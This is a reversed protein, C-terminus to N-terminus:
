SDRVRGAWGSEIDRIFYAQGEDSIEDYAKLTEGAAPNVTAIAM